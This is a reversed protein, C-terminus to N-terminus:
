VQSNNCYISYQTNKKNFKGDDTNFFLGEPVRIHKM